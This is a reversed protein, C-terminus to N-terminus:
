DGEKERAKYCICASADSERKKLRPYVCHGYRIPSYRYGSKIYHQRFHVCEKCVREM